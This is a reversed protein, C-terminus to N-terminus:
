EIRRRVTSTITPATPTPPVWGTRMWDIVVLSVWSMAAVTFCDMARASTPQSITRMVAGLTAAAFHRWAIRACNVAAPKPWMGSTASM